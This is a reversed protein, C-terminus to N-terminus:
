EVPTDPTDNDIAGVFKTIARSVQRGGRRGKRVPYHIIKSIEWEYGEFHLAHGISPDVYFALLFTGHINQSTSLPMSERIHDPLYFVVDWLVARRSVNEIKEQYVGSTFKSASM